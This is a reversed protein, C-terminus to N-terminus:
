AKYELPIVQPNFFMRDAHVATGMLMVVSDESTPATQTLGGSTGAYIPSGTVWNWDDDRVFGNLLVKCAADADKSELAMGILGQCTAVGTNEIKWWKGDSKLYVVNPFAITEGAVIDTVINGAASNDAMGSSVYLVSKLNTDLDGGLQPTTDDVLNEMYGSLDQDGTNTGSLNNATLDGSFTADGNGYVTLIETSYNILALAKENNALAQVGTGNKKGSRFRVTAGTPTAACTVGYFEIGPDLPNIGCTIGRFELGGAGARYTEIGAYVNTPNFTTVGHDLSTETLALTKGATDAVFEGTAQPEGSGGIKMRKNTSDIVIFDTGDAQAFNIATTSNATPRIDQGTTLKIGQSFIPQGGTVTQPTTQDLWLFENAHKNDLYDSNLNTNLTTSIVQIPRTGTSATSIYYSAGVGNGGDLINVKSSMGIELLGSLPNVGVVPLGYYVEDNVDYYNYIIGGKSLGFYPETVIHAGNFSYATIENAGLDVSQTAGTYPVYSSLSSSSASNDTITFNPYTGGITVNTGGSFGVTQDPATNEISFSPYTGTVNIGTGSTLSVTRDFLNSSGETINDTTDSDKNFYNGSPQFGTHGAHAYDLNTLQSHDTVGQPADVFEIGDKTPKVALLKGEQGDYSDPTDGLELFTGGIIGQNLTVEFTVPNIEGIFNKQVIETDM